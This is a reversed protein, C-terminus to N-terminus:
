RESRRLPSRSIYARAPTLYYQERLKVITRTCGSNYGFQLSNSFYHPSLSSPKCFASSQDIKPELQTSKSGTLSQTRECKITKQSRASRWYCRWEGWYFPLDYNEWHWIAPERPYTRMTRAVSANVSHFLDHRSNVESSNEKRM